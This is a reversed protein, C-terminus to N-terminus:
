FGLKGGWIQGLVAAFIFLPIYRFDLNSLLRGFVIFPIPLHIFLFWAVSYKRVKGRLYGFPLNLM